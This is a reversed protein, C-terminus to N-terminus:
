RATWYYYIYTKIYRAGKITDSITLDVNIGSTSTVTWNPNEFYATFIKSCGDFAKEGIWTVSELIRFATINSCGYFAYSDIMTGGTITVTKLTSPVYTSNEEYTKAGFIYGFFSNSSLVLSKNGGVFPISISKFKCDKFAGFGIKTITNPIVVNTILDNWTSFDNGEFAYDAIATITVGDLQEPISISSGNKKFYTGTITSGEHKFYDRAGKVAQYANLKKVKHLDKSSTYNIDMDTASEMIISKIQKASFYPDVSQILAAVGAVHPAALSTGGDIKYGSSNIYTPCITFVNYGPAYISVSNTGYNSGYPRTNNVNIQSVSIVRNSFAAYDTNTEDAYNSPYHHNNDDDVNVNDNGAAAIFLGKYNMIAQKIVDIEQGLKNGGSYNLIPIGKEIAKTIAYAVAENDFKYGSNASDKPDDYWFVVQLPVLQVNWCVGVFGGSAKGTAGIIGAVQTGHGTPDDNTIENDNYCDWGEVVNGELDPHDAIGSDIVGVKVSSSGTTIKWAEQAKIGYTGYLNWLTKQQDESWNDPLIDDALPTDYYAPGVYKIGDVNELQGIVKLVNEKSKNPLTIKLIQRFNEKDLYEYSDIDGPLYTLDKVQINKLNGFLKNEHKVNLGGVNKDMIVMVSDDAFDDEITAKSYVKQEYVVKELENAQVSTLDYLFAVLLSCLMVLPLCFLAVKRIKFKITKM